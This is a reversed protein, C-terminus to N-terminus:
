PGDSLGDSLRAQIGMLHAQIDTLRAIKYGTQYHCAQFLHARAAEPTDIKATVRPLTV